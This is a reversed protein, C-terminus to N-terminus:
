LLEQLNRGLLRAVAEASDSALAKEAMLGLAAYSSARIALRVRSARLTAGFAEEQEPWPDLVLTGIQSNLLIRM